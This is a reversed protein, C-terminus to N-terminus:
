PEWFRDFIADPPFAPCQGWITADGPDDRTFRSAEGYPNWPYAGFRGIDVAEERTLVTRVEVGHVQLCPILTDQYYDYLYDLQAENLLGLSEGSLQYSMRCEYETIIAAQAGAATAVEGTDGCQDLLESWDDAEVTTAEVEPRMSEPLGTLEWMRSGM